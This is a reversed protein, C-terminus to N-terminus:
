INGEVETARAIVLRVCILEGKGVPSDIFHPRQICCIAWCDICIPGLWTEQAIVM